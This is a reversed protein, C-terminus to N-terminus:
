GHPDGKYKSIRKCMLYASAAAGFGNDINVVTIGPSCSQLMSMLASTGGGGFGYGVSTPVGIVPIDVLSKVVSPLAGEMGAVVIIVDVEEEVVKDIWPLVRHIGAIGIDYASIARCGLEELIMRAEEAIPIDSTGAAFVAVKGMRTKRTQETKLVAVGAKNNFDKIAEISVLKEFHDPDAKTIIVQGKNELLTVTLTLVDEPSKGKALIVEPIGTSKERDLDLNAVGEVILCDRELRELPDRM